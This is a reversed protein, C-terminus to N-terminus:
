LPHGSPIKKKLWSGRLQPMSPTLPLLLMSDGLYAWLEAIGQTPYIPCPHLCLNYSRALTASPDKRSSAPNPSPNCLSLYELGLSIPSKLDQYFHSPTWAPSQLCSLHAHPLYGKLLGLRLSEWPRPVAENLPADYVLEWQPNWGQSLFLWKMTGLVRISPIALPQAVAEVWDRSFGQFIGLFPTGPADTHVRASAHRLSRSYYELKHPKREGGVGM